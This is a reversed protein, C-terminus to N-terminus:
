NCYCQFNELYNVNDRINKGLRAIGYNNLHIRDNYLERVIRQQGDSFNRLFVTDNEIFYLRNRACLEKIMMNIRIVEQDLEDLRPLLTCFYVNKYKSKAIKILEQLKEKVIKASDKCNNTGIMLILNTNKCQPSAAILDSLNEIRAGPYSDRLCTEAPFTRQPDLYKVISDGLIYNTVDKPKLNHPSRLPSRREHFPARGTRNGTAYRGFGVVPLIKAPPSREELPGFRNNLVVESYTRSDVGQPRLTNSRRTPRPLAEPTPPGSKSSVGATLKFPNKSVAQTNTLGTTSTDHQVDIFPNNSPAPNGSSRLDNNPIFPNKSKPPHNLKISGKKMEDFSKELNSLRQKEEELESMVMILTNHLADIVVSCQCDSRIVNSARAESNLHELPFPSTRIRDNASLNPSSTPSGEALIRYKLATQSAPSTPPSLEDVDISGIISTNKNSTIDNNDDRMVSLCIGEESCYDILSIPSINSSNYVMTNNLDKLNEKLFKIADEFLKFGKHKANTGKVVKQCAKWDTYLGAIAEPWAVAYTKTKRKGNNGKM